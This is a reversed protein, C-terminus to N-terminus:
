TEPDKQQGVRGLLSDPEITASSSHARKHQPPSQDLCTPLFKLFNETDQPDSAQARVHRRLTWMPGLVNPAPPCKHQYRSLTTELLGM